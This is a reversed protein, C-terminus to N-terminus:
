LDYSELEQVKEEEGTEQSARKCITSSGRPEMDVNRFFFVIDKPHYRRPLQLRMEKKKEEM